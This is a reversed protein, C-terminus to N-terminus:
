KHLLDKLAPRKAAPRVTTWTGVSEFKSKAANEKMDVTMQLKKPTGHLLITRANKRKVTSIFQKTPSKISEDAVSDINKSLSSNIKSHMVCTDELVGGANEHGQHNTEESAEGQEEAPPTENESASDITKEVSEADPEVLPTVEAIETIVDTFLTNKNITSPSVNETSESDTMVDIQCQHDAKERALGQEQEEVPLIEDRSAVETTEDVREADPEVLPTLEVVEVLMNSHLANENTSLSLNETSESNTYDIMTGVDSEKSLSEPSKSISSESAAPDQIDLEGVKYEADIGPMTVEEEGVFMAADITEEVSEADREVLPSLEAVEIVVNSHLTNENTLPSLNETSESDTNDTKTDVDSEMSLEPSKSIRPESAAPGQIDLEGVKDEADIGLMTIEDEGGFGAVSIGTDEEVDKDSADGKSEEPPINMEAGSEAHQDNSNDEVEIEKQIRSECIKEENHQLPTGNFLVLRDIYGASAAHPSSNYFSVDDRKQVINDEHGTDSDGFLMKLEDGDWSNSSNWEDTTGEVADPLINQQNTSQIENEVARAADVSYKHSSTDQEQEEQSFIEDSQYSKEDRGPSSIKRLSMIDREMENQHISTNKEERNSSVSGPESLYIEFNEGELSSHPTEPLNTSTAELNFLGGEERMCSEQMENGINAGSASIYNGSPEMVEAMSRTSPMQIMDLQQMPDSEENRGGESCAGDGKNQVNDDTLHCKVIETNTFIYESMFSSNTPTKSMSSSKKSSFEIERQRGGEAIITAISFPSLHSAATEVTDEASSVGQDQIFSFKSRTSSNLEVHHLCDNLTIDQDKLHGGEEFKAVELHNHRDEASTCAEVVSHKDVTEVPDKPGYVGEVGIFTFKSRVSSDLGAHQLSDDVATEQNELHGLEVFKAVEVSNQRDGSETHAEVVFGGDAGNGQKSRPSETRLVSQKELGENDTFAGLFEFNFNANPSEVRNFDSIGENIETVTEVTTASIPISVFVTGQLHSPQVFSEGSHVNEDQVVKRTSRSADLVSEQCEDSAGSSEESHGDGDSKVYEFSMLEPQNIVTESASDNHTECGNKKETTSEEKQKSSNGTNMTSAHEGESVANLNHDNEFDFCNIRELNIPRSDQGIYSEQLGEEVAAWCGSESNGKPDMGEAVSGLQNVENLSGDLPVNCRDLNDDESTSIIIRYSEQMPVSEEKREVEIDAGYGQFKLVSNSNAPTTSMSSSKSASLEIEMCKDGETIQTGESSHLLSTVGQADSIAVSDQTNLVGPDQPSRFKIKESSKLERSNWRHDLADNQHKLHGVEEYNSSEVLDHGDDFLEADICKGKESPSETSLKSHTELNMGPSVGVIKCNLEGQLELTFKSKPLEVRRYDFSSDTFETVTEVAEDSIPTSVSVGGYLDVPQNIDEGSGANGEQLERTASIRSADSANAQWCEDLNDYKVKSQGDEDFKSDVFTPLEHHNFKTDAAFLNPVECSSRQISISEEMLKEAEQKNEDANNPTLAADLTCGDLTNTNEVAHPHSDENDRFSSEDLNLQASEETIIEHLQQEKTFERDSVSYTELIMRGTIGELDNLEEIVDNGSIDSLVHERELSNIKVTLPTKRTYVEMESDNERRSKENSYTEDQKQVINDDSPPHVSKDNTGSAKKPEGNDTLPSEVNKLYTGAVTESDQDERLFNSESADASELNTVSGTLNIMTDNFNDNATVKAVEPMTFEAKPAPQDETTLIEETSTREFKEQMKKSRGKVKQAAKGRVTTPAVRESRETNRTCRRLPREVSNGDVEVAQEQIVAEKRQKKAQKRINANAAEDIQEKTVLVEPKTANRKSRRLNNDVPSGENVVIGSANAVGSDEKVEVAVISRSRGQGVKENKRVNENVLKNYDVQTVHRRSRRLINEAQVGVSQEENEKTGAIDESGKDKKHSGNKRSGKKVDENETKEEDKLEMNKLSRKTALVHEENERKEVDVVRNRLSRRGAVVQKEDAAYALKDKLADGKIEREGGKSQVQCDEILNVKRTRTIRGGAGEVIVAKSSNEVVGSVSPLEDKLSGVKMRIKGGKSETESVEIVKGRRSRPVREVGENVVADISDIMVSKRRGQGRIEVNKLESKEFEILENHPSFRVKKVPRNEVDSENESVQRRGRTLPKENAGTLPKENGMLLASLRNVMELNTLNAPIKHKKCLEQLERRNLNHFDM